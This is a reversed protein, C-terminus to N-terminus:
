RGKRTLIGGGPGLKESEVISACSVAMFCFPWDVFSSCEVRTRRCPCCLLSHATVGLVMVLNHLDRRTGTGLLDLLAIELDTQKQGQRHKQASVVTGIPNVCSDFVSCGSLECM